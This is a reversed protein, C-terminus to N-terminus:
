GDPLTNALIQATEDFHQACQAVAASLNKLDNSIETAAKNLRNVGQATTGTFLGSIGRTILANIALSLSVQIPFRSCRDVCSRIQVACDDLEAGAARLDGAIDNLLETDMRIKGGGYDRLDAGYDRMSRAKEEAEAIMPDLMFGLFPLAQKLFKLVALNLHAGAYEKIYGLLGTLLEGDHTGILRKAYVPVDAWSLGDGLTDRLICALLEMLQQRDQTDLTRIYGNLVLDLESMLPNQPVQHDNLPLSKHLTFLSHAEAPNRLKTGKIYITERGVDNLLLNVYDDANAYNLIKHQNKQIKDAYGRIFEDSFGQGDFSVCADVNDCLLTILKAKNGGKSHGSVSVSGCENLISQVDSGNYWDVAAQQLPSIMNGDADPTGAIADDYWEDAGVTGEFVVAAESNDPTTFIMQDGGTGIRSSHRLTMTSVVPDNIIQECVSIVQERTTFDDTCANITRNSSLISQAIDSLTAGVPLKNADNNLYTLSNLLFLQDPSLSM